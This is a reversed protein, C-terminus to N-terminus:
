MVENRIHKHTFKSLQAHTFKALTKHQNYLLSLDIVINAPMVRNLLSDVEDYKEKVKLEVRVKLIYDNNKLEMTYGKDGCLNKLQLELNRYSYPLQENLRAIIRFRRIEDTDTPKPVVKFIKEWRDIGDVTAHNIYADNLVDELEQWLDYIEKKEAKAIEKFERILQLNPPLYDILKRDM